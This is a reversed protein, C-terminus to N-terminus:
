KRARRRRLYSYHANPRMAVVAEESKTNTTRIIYGSAELLARLERVSCAQNRLQKEDAEAFVMDVRELLQASGRLVSCEFGQVDM